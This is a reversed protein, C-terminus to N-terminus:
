PSLKLYMGNAPRITVLGRPMIKSEDIALEWTFSRVMAALLCRMEAKAFGQGICSRTGHLFSMFDYNSNAGGNQKPKKNDGIWREPKFESADRGSLEPARNIHWIPVIMDTGKPIFHDGIQTDRIAQRMTLPVTPYIRLSEHMIGNLLPLQELTGTLDATPMSQVDEPLAM